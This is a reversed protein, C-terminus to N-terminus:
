SAVQRVASRFDLGRARQLLAIADGGVGCAHCRWVNKAMNVSMSPHAEKGDARLPCRATREVGRGHVTIGVSALVDDIPRSRARDIERAFADDSAILRGAPRTSRAVPRAPAPSAAAHIAAARAGIPVARAIRDTLARRLTDGTQQHLECLDKVEPGGTVVWADPLDMAVRCVFQQGAHGPEEWLYVTRGALSPAYEPKWALAGSVGVATVGHAAAAWTDSEGECVIVGRSEARHGLRDVGYLGYSGGSPDRRCTGDSLRIKDFLHAGHRDRYPIRVASQRGYRCDTLAFEDRLWAAELHKAAALAAVSLSEIADM